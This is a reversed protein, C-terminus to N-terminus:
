IINKNPDIFNLIKLIKIGNNITLKMPMNM